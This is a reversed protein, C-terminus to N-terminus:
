LIVPKIGLGPLFTVILGDVQFKFLLGFHGLADLLSGLRGLLLGLCVFTPRPIWGFTVWPMWFYGLAYLFSLVDLFQGPWGFTVWPMWGFTAYPM